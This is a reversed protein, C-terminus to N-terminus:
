GNLQLPHAVPCPAPRQRTEHPELLPFGAVPGRDSARWESPSPYRCLGAPSVAVAHRAGSRRAVQLGIRRGLLPDGTLCRSGLRIGDGVSGWANELRSGSPRAVGIALSLVHRRICRWFSDLRPRSPRRTCGPWRAGSRAAPRCPPRRRCPQGHADAEGDADAGARDDTVTAVRPQADRDGQDKEGQGWDGYRDQERAPLGPGRHRGAAPPGWRDVGARRRGPGPPGARGPCRRHTPQRATMTPMRRGPWRSWPPWCPRAPRPNWCGM